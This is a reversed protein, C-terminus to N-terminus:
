LEETIHIEWIEWDHLNLVSNGLGVAFDVLVPSDSM